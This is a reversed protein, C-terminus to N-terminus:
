LTPVANFYDEFQIQCYPYPRIQKDTAVATEPIGLIIPSILIEQMIPFRELAQERPQFDSLELSEGHRQGEVTAHVCRIGLKAHKPCCDPAADRFSEPVSSLWNKRDDLLIQSAIRSLRNAERNCRMLFLSFSSKAAQFVRQAATIAVSKIEPALDSLRIRRHGFCVKRNRFFSEVRKTSRTDIDM